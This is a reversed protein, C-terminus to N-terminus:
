SLSGGGSCETRNYIQNVGALRQGGGGLCGGYKYMGYDLRTCFILLVCGCVDPVYIIPFLEQIAHARIGCKLPFEYKDTSSRYTSLSEGPWHTHPVAPLLTAVSGPTLLNPKVQRIGRWALSPFQNRKVRGM